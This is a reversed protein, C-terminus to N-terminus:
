SRRGQNHPLHDRICGALFSLNESSLSIVKSQEKIYIYYLCFSLSYLLLEYQGFNIQSWDLHPFTFSLAAIFPWCWISRCRFFPSGLELPSPKLRLTSFSTRNLMCRWSKLLWLLGRANGEKSSWTFCLLGQVLGRGFYQDHIGSAAFQFM